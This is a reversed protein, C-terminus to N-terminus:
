AKAVGEPDRMWCAIAELEEADFRGRLSADKPYVHIVPYVRGSYTRYMDVECGMALLVLKAEENTMIADVGRM